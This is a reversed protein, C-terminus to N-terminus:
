PREKPDYSLQSPPHHERSEPGPQTAAPTSRPARPHQVGALGRRALLDLLPQAARALEIVEDDRLSRGGPLAGPDLLLTVGPALRLGHVREVAGAGGDGGEEGEGDGGSDERGDSAGFAAAPAAHAPAPPGGPRPGSGSPRERWFRDRREAAPPSAPVLREPVQAVAELAPDTAGSLEAQIDALSHGAAQRRKVSVLQLLHRRGYLATRGRRGLPPDLLGITVYWRILRENPVDRVRGSHSASPDAALVAAAREALESITWTGDM